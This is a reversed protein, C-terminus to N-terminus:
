ITMLNMGSVKKYSQFYVQNFDLLLLENSLFFLVQLIIIKMIYLWVNFFLLKVLVIKDKGNIHLIFLKGMFFSCLCDVIAGPFQFSGTFM